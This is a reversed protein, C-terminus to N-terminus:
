QLNRLENIGFRFGKNYSPIFIAFPVVTNRFVAPVEM